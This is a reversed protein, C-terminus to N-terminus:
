VALRPDNALRVEFMRVVNRENPAGVFEPSIQLFFRLAFEEHLRPTQHDPLGLTDHHTARFPACFFMMQSVLQEGGRRYPTAKEGQLRRVFHDGDSFRARANQERFSTDFRVQLQGAFVAGRQLRIFRHQAPFCRRVADADHGAVARVGCCPQQQRCATPYLRKQWVQIEGEDDLALHEEPKRRFLVRLSETGLMARDINPFVFGASVEIAKGIQAFAYFDGAM